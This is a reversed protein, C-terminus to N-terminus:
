KGKQDLGKQIAEKQAPSANNMMQKATDAPNSKTPAPNDNSGGCGISAILIILALPAILCRLTKM